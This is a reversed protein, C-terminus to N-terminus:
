TITQLHQEVKAEQNENAQLSEDAKIDNLYNYVTNRSVKLFKAVYEVSGRILFMGQDNLIEIVKRRDKKHMNRVPAATLQVVKSVANLLLENVDRVFTESKKKNDQGLESAACFGELRLQFERWYTIDINICLFGVINQEDDLFPLTSSRLTRGDDTCTKYNLFADKSAKGSRAAETFIRLGFDTIPGGVKRGTVNGGIAIISRQPQSVDHLVVECDPGIAQALDAVLPKLSELVSHSM